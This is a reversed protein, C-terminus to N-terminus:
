KESSPGLLKKEASQELVDKRTGGLAIESTPPDGRDDKAERVDGVHAKGIPAIHDEGGDGSKEIAPGPALGPRDEGRREDMGSDIDGPVEEKSGELNCESNRCRLGEEHMWDPLHLGPHGQARGAGTCFAFRM